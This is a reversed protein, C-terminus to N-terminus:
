MKRVNKRVNAMHPIQGIELALTLFNKHPFLTSFTLFYHPFHSSIEESKGWMKRVNFNWLSFVCMARPQVSRCLGGAYDIKSMTVGDALFLSLAFNSVPVFINDTTISSTRSSSDTQLNPGQTTPNQPPETTAAAAGAGGLNTSKFSLVSDLAAVTSQECPFVPVLFTSNFHSSNAQTCCLLVHSSYRFLNLHRSALHRSFGQFLRPEHLHPNPQTSLACHKRDALRNPATPELGSKELTKWSM